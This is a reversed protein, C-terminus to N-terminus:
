RCNSHGHFIIEGINKLWHKVRSTQNEGEQQTQRGGASLQTHQARHDRLSSHASRHCSGDDHPRQLNAGLAFVCSELESSRKRTRIARGAAHVSSGDRRPEAPCLGSRRHDVSRVQPAEQHDTGLSLGAKGTVIGPGVDSLNLLLGISRTAGAPRGVCVLSQDEGFRAERFDAPQGTSGPLRRQSADRVATGCAASASVLQIAGMDQGDLSPLKEDLPCHPKPKEIPMGAQGPGILVAHADLARAGGAGGGHHSDGSVDAVQTGEAPGLTQVHRDYAELEYRDEGIAHSQEFSDTEEEHYVEKHQLLSDFADLCPPEVNVDTPGPIQQRSKVTAEVDRATIPQGESLFWRLVEDVFDLGEHKAAYLIKLYQKVGSKEGQSKVLQDYAMRFRTTPYM